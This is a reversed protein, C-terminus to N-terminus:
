AVSDVACPRLDRRVRHSPCNGFGQRHRYRGSSCSL